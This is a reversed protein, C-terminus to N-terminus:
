RTVKKPPAPLMERTASLLVSEDVKLFERYDEHLDNETAKGTLYHGISSALYVMWYDPSPIHTVAISM